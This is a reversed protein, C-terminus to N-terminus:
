QQADGIDKQFKPSLFCGMISDDVTGLNYIKYSHQRLHGSPHAYGM